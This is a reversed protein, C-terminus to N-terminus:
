LPSAVAVGVAAFAATNTLAIFKQKKILPIIAITAINHEAMRPWCAVELSAAGRGHFKDGLPLRSSENSDNSGRGRPDICGDSRQPRVAFGVARKSPFM